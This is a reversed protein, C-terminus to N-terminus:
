FELKEAIIPSLAVGMGNCAGVVTINQSLKEICPEKNETFGMIGSWKYDITYPINQLIHQSLFRELEREIAETTLFSTTTEEEFAKNRAGGVLVRDGLNRFYYFGENYHFTGKLRLGKIPTTVIIQGRGPKLKIQSVLKNSFANTCVVVRQSKFTIDQKTYVSIYTSKEEWREVSIGTLIEVDESQVKKTLAQVLKGSHLGGELRNEFMAEFGQLGFLELKEDARIFINEINTFAKLGKNLWQLNEQLL